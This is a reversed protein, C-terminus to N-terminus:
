FHPECCCPSVGGGDEKSLDPVVGQCILVRGQCGADKMVVQGQSTKLSLDDIVVQEQFCRRSLEAKLLEGM